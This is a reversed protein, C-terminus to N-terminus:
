KRTAALSQITQQNIQKNNNDIMLRYRWMKINQSM